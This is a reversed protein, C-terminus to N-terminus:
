YKLNLDSQNIVVIVAKDTIFGYSIITLILLLLWVFSLIVNDKTKWKMSLSKTYLFYLGLIDFILALTM